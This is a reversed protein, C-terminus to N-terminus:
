LGALLKGLAFFPAGAMLSDLRDLVGGHGPFLRGSDKCGVTRKHMSIFLDGAASAAATVLGLLAVYAPNADIAPILSVALAPVIAALLLGGYLGARTKGPSINPALKRRGFRRGAFYAGIDAAWIILLLVLLWWAGAPQFRLWALAMWAFTLVALAHAFSQVRYARDPERGPRYFRMQAFMVLWAACAVLFYTLSHAMWRAPEILCLLFLGAQIAPLAWSALGSGLDALKRFEWSGILLLLAAVVAFTRPSALFVLAFALPLLAVATM